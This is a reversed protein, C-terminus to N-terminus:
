CCSTVWTLVCGNCSSNYDEIAKFFDECATEKYKGEVLLNYSVPNKCSCASKGYEAIIAERLDDPRSISDKEEETQEISTLRSDYYAIQEWGDVCSFGEVACQPNSSVSDSFAKDKECLDVIKQPIAGETVCKFKNFGTEREETVVMSSNSPCNCPRYYTGDVKSELSDYEKNIKCIKEVCKGAECMPLAPTMCMYECQLATSQYAAVIKKLYDVSNKNVYSGCGFPCGFYLVTCDEDVSCYNANEIEQNIQHESINFVFFWAWAVVAIAAIVGIAALVLATKSKM